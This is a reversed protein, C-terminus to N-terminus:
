CVETKWQQLWDYIPVGRPPPAHSLTAAKFGSQLQFVKELLPKELRYSAPLLAFHYSFNTNSVQTKGAFLKKFSVQDKCCNEDNQTDDTEQATAIEDTCCSTSNSVIQEINNVASEEALCVHLHEVQGFSALLYSFAVIYLLLKKMM